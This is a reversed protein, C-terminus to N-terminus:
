RLKKRENRIFNFIYGATIAGYISVTPAFYTHGSFYAISFTLILTIGCCIIKDNDLHKKIKNLFLIVFRILIYSPLLLYIVLGIIGYSYYIDFYDSEAIVENEKDNYLTSGFLKQIFSADKVLEKKIERKTKRGSYIIDIIPSDEDILAGEKNESKIYYDYRNLQYIYNYYNPSFYTLCITIAILIFYYGVKKIGNKSIIFIIFQRLLYFSLSFILALALTKTGIILLGCSYFIFIVYKTFQNKVKNISLVVFPSLIALLNSVENPSRFWGIEGQKGWGNFEPSSILLLAISIVIIYVNSIINIIKNFYDEKKFSILKLSIVPALLLVANIFGSLSFWNYDAYCGSDYTKVSSSMIMALMIFGIYIFSIISLINFINEKKSKYFLIIFFLIMMPYYILKAIFILELMLTKLNIFPMNAVLFGSVFFIVLISYILWVKKNNKFIYFYALFLVFFRFLASFSIGVINLENTLSSIIDIMPSLILLIEVISMKEKIKTIIEKM